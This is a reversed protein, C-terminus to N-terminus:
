HRIGFWGLGLDGLFPSCYSQLEVTLLSVLRLVAVYKHFGRENIFIHWKEHNDKLVAQLSATSEPSIGPWVSPGIKSLPLVSPAPFLETIESM